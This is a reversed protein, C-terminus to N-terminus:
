PRDKAIHELLISELRDFRDDIHKHLAADRAAIAAELAAPRSENWKEQAARFREQAVLTDAAWAICLIALASAVGAIWKLARKKETSM